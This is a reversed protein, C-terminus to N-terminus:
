YYNHYQKALDYDDLLWSICPHSISLSWGGSLLKLQCLKSKCRGEVWSILSPTTMSTKKGEALACAKDVRTVVGVVPSSGSDSLVATSVFRWSKSSCRMHHVLTYGLINAPSITNILYPSVSKGTIFLFSYNCRKFPLLKLIIMLLVLFLVFFNEEKVHM